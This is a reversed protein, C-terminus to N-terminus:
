NLVEFDNLKELEDDTLKFTFWDINIPPNWHESMIAFVTKGNDEYKYLAATVKYTVDPIKWNSGTYKVLKNLWKESFVIENM